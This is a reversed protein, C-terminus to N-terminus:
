RNDGNGGLVNRELRSLLKTLNNQAVEDLSLNLETAMQAVYWLVDGLEKSIEQRDTDNIQGNKDRLIKKIKDAVEGAEGALGLTPYVFNSGVNPYIATKKSNQQYDSFTM